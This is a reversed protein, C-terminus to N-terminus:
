HKEKLEAKKWVKRKDLLEDNINILKLSYNGFYKSKLKLLDLKEMENQIELYTKGTNIFEILLNMKKLDNENDIQFESNWITQREPIKYEDLEKILNPKESIIKELKKFDSKSIKSVLSEDCAEFGFSKKFSSTMFKKSVIARTPMKDGVKNDGILPTDEEYYKDIIEEVRFIGKSYSYIWEGKKLNM